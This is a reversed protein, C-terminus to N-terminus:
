KFNQNSVTMRVERGITRAVDSFLLCLCRRWHFRESEFNMYIKSPQISAFTRVSLLVKESICIRKIKKRRIKPIGLIKLILRFSVSFLAVCFIIPLTFVLIGNVFIDKTAWDIQIAKKTNGRESARRNNNTMMTMDCVCVNQMQRIANCM